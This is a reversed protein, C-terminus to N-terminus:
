LLKKGRLPPPADNRDVWSAHTATPGLETGACAPTRKLESAAFFAALDRDDGAENLDLRDILCALTPQSMPQSMLRARGGCAFGLIRFKAGLAAGRFGLCPVPAIAKGALIIDVVEFAGFRTAMEAPTLSRGISLDAQAAARALDVYLPMNPAPEAGVRYLQLRMYPAPGNPAGLTLIDQRGGGLRNRRGEYLPAAKALEPATLDFVPIPRVIDIWVPPPAAAPAMGMAAAQRTPDPANAAPLIFIGCVLRLGRRRDDRFRPPRRQLSARRM